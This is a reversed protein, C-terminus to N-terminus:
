NIYYLKLLLMFVSLSAKPLIQKLLTLIFDSETTREHIEDLIIHSFDKLAPDIKM